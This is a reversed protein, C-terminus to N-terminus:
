LGGPKDAHPLRYHLIHWGPELCCPAVRRFSRLPTPRRPCSTGIRDVTQRRWQWAPMVFSRGPTLGWSPWATCPPRRQARQTRGASGCRPCCPQVPPHLPTANHSSWTWWYCPSWSQIITMAQARLLGVVPAGRGCARRLVHACCPRILWSTASSGGAALDATVGPPPVHRLTGLASLLEALLAPDLKSRNAHVYDVLTSM